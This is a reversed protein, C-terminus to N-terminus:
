QKTSNDRVERLHSNALALKRRRLCVAALTRGTREAVVRPPLSQVLKDESETWRCPVTQFRFSMSGRSRPILDVGNAPLRHGLRLRTPNVVMWRITQTMREKFEGLTVVSLDADNALLGEVVTEVIFIAEVIITPDTHYHPKM